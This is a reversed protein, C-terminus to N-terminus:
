ACPGNANVANYVELTERACKEWSFRSARRVGREILEKQLYDKTLLEIIADRLDDVQEPDVLLAADGVIEPLSSRNSAIVPTGCAMAELPPLGLGECISPYVLLTAGNYLYPLEQNPVYGTILVREQVKLECALKFVEDTYGTRKGVLVLAYAEKINEPLAAYARVLGPLNNHFSFAGVFLICDQSLSFRDRLWKKVAGEPLVKFHNEVGGYIVRFKAEPLGFMMMADEKIHKSTTIIARAGKLYVPLNAEMHDIFEPPYFKRSKLPILDHLTIIYPCFPAERFTALGNRTNHFLTVKHKLLFQTLLHSEWLDDRYKGSYAFLVNSHDPFGYPPLDARLLYYLTETNLAAMYRILNHTYRGIESVRDLLERADIAISRRYSDHRRVKKSPENLVRIEVIPTKVFAVNDIWLTGTDHMGVQLTVGSVGDPIDVLGAYQKMEKGASIFKLHHWGIWNGAPDWFHAMIRLHKGPQDSKIEASAEWREGPEVRVTYDKTQIIGVATGMFTPNILKISRTGDSPHETSYILTTREDGYGADQWGEPWLNRQGVREFSHNFVRNETM